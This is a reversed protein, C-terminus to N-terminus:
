EGCEATIALTINGRLMFNHKPDARIVDKQLFWPFHFQNSSAITKNCGTKIYRCFNGHSVARGVILHCTSKSEKCMAQPKGNFGLSHLVICHLHLLSSSSCLHSVSVAAVSNCKVTGQLKCNHVFVHVFCFTNKAVQMKDNVTYLVIFM